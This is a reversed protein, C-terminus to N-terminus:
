LLGDRGRRVTESFTAVAVTERPGGEDEEDLLGCDIRRVTLVEDLLSRSAM